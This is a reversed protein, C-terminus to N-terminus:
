EIKKPSKNLLWYTIGLSLIVVGTGWLHAADSKAYDVIIVKRAVAILATAIVLQIHIVDEQLYMVINIFIEIAILVALFDGFLAVLQDSTMVFYPPTAAQKVMLYIVGVVSWIILVVMLISLLKVGLNIIRSLRHILPDRKTEKPLEIESM